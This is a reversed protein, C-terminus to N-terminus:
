DRLVGCDDSRVIRYAHRSLRLSLSHRKTSSGTRYLVRRPVFALIPRGIQLYEFLKGPVQIASHPQVILLSHSTQALHQAEAKPIQQPVIKLWGEGEAAQVFAREPLCSPEVPGVLQVQMSKGLLRGAEILRKVSELLPAVTRGEYLEGIHSLLRISGDPAPLPNIRAEPDFGNWILHIRSAKGPYKAKLVTEAEDTNAIVHSASHLFSRELRRYAAHTHRGLRLNAPNGALPDRFDAIWPLGANRSLQWAAFHPGVPPFTSFLAIQDGQHERVFRKGTLYADRSWQSGVAGPLLLKRIGRELQWGLGRGPSEFFPDPVREASLEPRQAVDAATIVHCKYGHAPLYKYFRFPRAAGVVNEPPFHYAFMLVWRDRM